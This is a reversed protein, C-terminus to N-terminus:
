SELNFYIIFTVSFTLIQKVGRCIDAEPKYQLRPIIHVTKCIKGNIMRYKHYYNTHYQYFMYTIIQLSIKTVYAKVCLM